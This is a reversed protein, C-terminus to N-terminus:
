PESASWAARLAHVAEEIPEQLFARIAAFGTAGTRRVARANAPGVGGIALVPAVAMRVASAVAEVGLARPEKGPTTFVPGLLVLDAGEESARRASAASHCSAGIVLGPFARRLAEVPVGEEPLQVGHAGAAVAVDARGNVLVRGPTGSVAAVVDSVLRLLARDSLDKERVQVFDVGARTARAALDALRRGGLQRRDSVMM